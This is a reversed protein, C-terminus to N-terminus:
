DTAGTSPLPPESSLSPVWSGDRMTQIRAALALVASPPAAAALVWTAGRETWAVVMVDGENRVENLGRPGEGTARVVGGLTPVVEMHQLTWLTSGGQYILVIASADPVVRAGLLVLGLGSLDPVDTLLAPVDRRALLLGLEAPDGSRLPADLQAAGHRAALVALDPRPLRSAWGLAAVVGVLVAAAVWRVWRRPKPRAPEAGPPLFLVSAPAPRMLATHVYLRADTADGPELLRHIADLTRPADKGATRKLEEIPADFFLDILYLLRAAAPIRRAGAETAALPPAPLPAEPSAAPFGPRLHAYLAVGVQAAVPDSTGFDTVREALDLRFTTAWGVAEGDTLCLARIVSWTAGAHANWLAPFAGPQSARLARVLRFEALDAPASM